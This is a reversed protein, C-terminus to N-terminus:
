AYAKQNVTINQTVIVPENDGKLLTDVCLHPPIEFYTFIADKIMASMNETSKGGTIIGDFNNVSEATWSGDPFQEIKFKIKGYESIEKKMKIIRADSEEKFNFGIKRILNSLNYICKNLYM